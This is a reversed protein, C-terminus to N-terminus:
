ISQCSKINIPDLCVENSAIGYGDIKCCLMINSDKTVDVWFTIRQTESDKPSGFDELEQYTVKGDADTIKTKLIEGNQYAKCKVNSYYPLVEPPMNILKYEFDLFHKYCEENIEELNYYDAIAKCNRARLESCFKNALASNINFHKIYVFNSKSLEITKIQEETEEQNTKPNSYYANIVFYLFVIIVIGIIIGLFLNNNERRM